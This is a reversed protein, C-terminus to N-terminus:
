KRKGKKELAERIRQQLAAIYRFPGGNAEIVAILEADLSTAGGGRLAVACDRLLARETPTVQRAGCAHRRSILLGM